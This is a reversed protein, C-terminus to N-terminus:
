KTIEQRDALFLSSVMQAVGGAGEAKPYKESLTKLTKKREKGL